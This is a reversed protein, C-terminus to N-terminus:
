GSNKVLIHREALGGSGTLVIIYIGSELSKIDLEHLGTGTLRCSLVITGAPNFITIIMGDEGPNNLYIKERAPNPYLNINRTVKNHEISTTLTNMCHGLSELVRVAIASEKAIMHIAPLTGSLRISDLYAETNNLVSDELNFLCPWLGKGAGDILKYSNIYDGDPDYDFLLSRIIAAKDCLSSTVAGDAELPTNGVAWYPIAITSAPQGLITWMTTLGAYESPKVGHIVTASVSSPRCISKECYIYGFPKGNGWTDNFPVDVPESYEDSFDRMQYRLISKHNLSDGSAFMEILESTRRYREIGGTGGGKLSFNTRVIYGEPVEAADYKYYTNGGTEFIAAAGASDIVGYNAHTSRGTRNTSDLFHMFEAVTRCNGLAHGMLGGNGLGSSNTPLDSINANVISFGHENIGMWPTWNDDANLVGIYKYKFSLCYVVENDPSSAYDRTKWLLPRGDPTASGAAVGITCSEEASNQGHLFGSTLVFSSLAAVIFLHKFSRRM